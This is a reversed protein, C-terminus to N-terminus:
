GGKGVGFAHWTWQVLIKIVFSTRLIKKMLNNNNNLVEKMIVIRTWYKTPFSLPYGVTSSPFFGCSIKKSAPNPM